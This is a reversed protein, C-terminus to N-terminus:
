NGARKAAWRKKQAAAMKKRTAASFPKRKLPTDTAATEAKLWAPPRGRRKTGSGSTLRTLMLIVENLQDRQTRLEALM